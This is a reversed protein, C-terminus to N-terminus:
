NKGESYLFPFDVWVRLKSHISLDSREVFSIIGKESNKM